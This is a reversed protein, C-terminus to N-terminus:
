EWDKFNLELHTYSVPETMHTYIGLTTNISAHGLQNQVVKPNTGAEM